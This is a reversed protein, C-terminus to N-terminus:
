QSPVCLLPTKKQYQLVLIEEKTDVFTLLVYRVSMFKWIQATILM